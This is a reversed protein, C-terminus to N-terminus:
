LSRQAISGTSVQGKASVSSFISFPKLKPLNQLKGSRPARRPGCQKGRVNRATTTRVGSRVDPTDDSSPIASPIHQRGPAIIRSLRGVRIPAAARDRSRSTPGSARARRTACSADVRTIGERPDLERFDRGSLGPASRAPRAGLHCTPDCSRSESLSEPNRAGARDRRPVSGSRVRGIRERARSTFPM